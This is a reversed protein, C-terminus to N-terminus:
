LKLSQLKQITNKTNTHLIGIGGSNNWDKINSEMDDILISNFTAYQKKEKAPCLILEVNPLERKVWDKKGKKSSDKESPASLIIPKYLKIYEWLLKGDKTWNLNIWFNYGEDDIPKWFKEDSVFKGSIDIGTLKKYGDVFDVLVGDLDCFVNYKRKM